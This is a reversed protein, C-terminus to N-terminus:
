FPNFKTEYIGDFYDIGCKIDKEASTLNTQTMLYIMKTM